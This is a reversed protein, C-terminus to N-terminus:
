LSIHFCTGKNEKSQIEIQGNHLETIIKKTITLGLGTGKAKTKTASSGQKFPEFIEKLDEPSIGVGNDCINFHNLNDKFTYNIQINGNEQTFKVANSLINIFAQKLLQKDAYIMRTSDLGHTELTINKEKAQTELLINIEDFLEAINIDTPYTEM